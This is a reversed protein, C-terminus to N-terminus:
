LHFIENVKNGFDEHIDAVFPFLPSDMITDSTQQHIRFPFYM